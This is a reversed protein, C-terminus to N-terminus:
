GGRSAGPSARLRRAVAAVDPVGALGAAEVDLSAAAAALRLDAGRRRSGGLVFGLQAALYAAFFVDGAGTQDVERAAAIAPYRRREYTGDPRHVSRWGGAPGETFLLTAGPRLLRRLSEVPTAAEVDHRSVAVIDARHLFASPRPARRRTTGGSPLERLLGQWGLAVLADSSPVDAWGEALEDAVPAFLWTRVSRWADPLADVPIPEGPELCKQVRGTPTELNEFVPGRGLRVLRLEAGADTLLRLEAASAAPRDAGLLVGARLGLRALMLGGYAVAGGLRWGREDDATVDRSASGVVVVDLRDPGSM